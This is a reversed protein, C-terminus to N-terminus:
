HDYRVFNSMPHQVCSRIDKRIAIPIDLEDIKEGTESMSNSEHYHTSMQKINIGRIRWRSYTQEFLQM